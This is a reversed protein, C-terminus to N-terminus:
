GNHRWVQHQIVRVIRRHSSRFITAKEAYGNLRLIDLKRELTRLMSRTSRSSRLRFQLEVACRHGSGIDNDSTGALVVEAADVDDSGRFLSIQRVPTLPDPLLESANSVSYASPCRRYTSLRDVNARCNRPCIGLGSTSWMLPSLGDIEIECFDDPLLGRDVTPVIM